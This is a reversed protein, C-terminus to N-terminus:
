VALQNSTLIDLLIISQELLHLCLFYGYICFRMPVVFWFVVISMNMLFFFLFFSFLFRPMGTTAWCTGNSSANMLIRTQGRAESLPNLLWCQWSSHHLECICISDPMTTTRTYTSLQLELEVGLRPIEMHWLHLGLYSFFFFFDLCMFIVM